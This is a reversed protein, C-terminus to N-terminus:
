IKEFYQEVIEEEDMNAALEAFFYEDYVNEYEPKIVFIEYEIDEEILQTQYDFMEPTWEVDPEDEVNFEECVQSNINYICYDWIVNRSMDAAINEAEAISKVTVFDWSEIGHYGGYDHDTARIAYTKM